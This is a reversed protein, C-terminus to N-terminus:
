TPIDPFKFSAGPHKTQKSTWKDMEHPFLVLKERQVVERFQLFTTQESRTEHASESTPPRHLDNALFHIAYFYMSPPTTNILEDVGTELAPNDHRKGLHRTLPNM